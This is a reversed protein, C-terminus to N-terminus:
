GELIVDDPSSQDPRQRIAISPAPAAIERGVNIDVITDLLSEFERTKAELHADLLRHTRELEEIKRNLTDITEVKEAVDPRNYRRNSLEEPLLFYYITTSRGIHIRDGNKLISQGLTIGNLRSGNHSGLDIVEYQDDVLRQFKLHLHSVSRQPVQIDNDRGRGLTICDRTLEHKITNGEAIIVLHPIM